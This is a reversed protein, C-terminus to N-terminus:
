KKVKKNKESDRDIFRSILNDLFKERESRPISCDLINKKLHPFSYYSKSM